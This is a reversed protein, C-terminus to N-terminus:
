KFIMCYTDAIATATVIDSVVSFNESKDYDIDKIKLHGECVLVKNGKVFDFTEDKKIVITDVLPLSKKNIAWNICWWEVEGIATFVLRGPLIIEPLDANSFGPYRTVPTYTGDLNEGRFEGKTHFTFNQMQSRYSSEPILTNVKEGDEVIYNYITWGFVKHTTFKM